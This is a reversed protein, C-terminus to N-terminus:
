DEEAANGLSFFLIGLEAIASIVRTTGDWKMPDTSLEIYAMTWFLIASLVLWPVFFKVWKINM